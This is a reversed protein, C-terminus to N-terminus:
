RVECIRIEKGGEKKDLEKKLSEDLKEIIKEDKNKAMFINKFLNLM